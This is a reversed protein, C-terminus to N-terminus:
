PKEGKWTELFDCEGEDFTGDCKLCTKTKTQNAFGIILMEQPLPM